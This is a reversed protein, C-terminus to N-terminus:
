KEPEKKNFYNILAEILKEKNIKALEKNKLPFDKQMKALNRLELVKMKALAEKTFLSKTPMELSLKPLFGENSVKEQSSQISKHLIVEDSLMEPKNESLEDKTTSNIVKKKEQPKDNMLEFVSDDLRPIVHSGVLIEAGLQQVQSVGAAVANSVAAVDGTIMVTVLGAGTYEKGYLQVNATKVMVDSAVIAALLGRMEILGITEM